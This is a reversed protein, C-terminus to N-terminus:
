IHRNIQVQKLVLLSVEQLLYAAMASQISSSCHTASMFYDDSPSPPEVIHLFPANCIRGLRIMTNIHMLLTYMLVNFSGADMYILEVSM